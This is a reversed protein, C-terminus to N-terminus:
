EEMRSKNRNNQNERLRKTTKKEEGELSTRNDEGEKYM